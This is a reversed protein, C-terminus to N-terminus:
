ADNKIPCEDGAELIAECGPCPHPCDDDGAKLQKATRALLAAVERVAPLMRADERERKLLAQYTEFFRARATYLMAEPTHALYRNGGIGNLADYIAPHSFDEPTPPEYWNLRKLVEAWAEGATPIGRQRDLLEFAVTRLEGASPFFARDQAGIELTAAKLLDANLDGLILHYAEVTRQELKIRPFMDVLVGLIKAFEIKDIM